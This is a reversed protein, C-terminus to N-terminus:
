KDKKSPIMDVMLDDIWVNLGSSNVDVIVRIRQTWVDQPLVELELMQWADGPYLWVATSVPLENPNIENARFLEARLGVRAPKAEGNAYSKCLSKVSIKYREKPIISLYDSDDYIAGADKIKMSPAAKCGIERDLVINASNLNRKEKTEPDEDYLRAASNFDSNAFLGKYQLEAFYSPENGAVISITNTKESSVNALSHITYDGQPINHIFFDGREDTLASYGGPTLWVLMNKYAGIQAIKVNGKLSCEGAKLYDSGKVHPLAAVADLIPKPKMDPYTWTYREWTGSVGYLPDGLLFPCVAVLEPDNLWAGLYARITYSVSLDPTIKPFTTDSFEELPYGTETIIVPYKANFKAIEKMEWQYGFVSYKDKNYEPPHNLPYSHSSWFDIYDKIEPVAKFIEDIFYINDLNKDGVIGQKGDGNDETGGSPSLASNLLLIQPSVKKVAKATAVHYRAYAVPDPEEAWGEQLNPENWLELYPVRVGEAEIAAIWNAIYGAVGEYGGNPDSKPKAGRGKRVLWEKNISNIYLIPRLKFARCLIIFRAHTKAEAPDANVYQRVWGWEGCLKSASELHRVGGNLDFSPCTLHTMIGYKNNQSFGSIAYLVFLMAFLIKKM